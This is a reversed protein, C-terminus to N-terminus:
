LGWVSCRAIGMEGCTCILMHFPSHRHQSRDSLRWMGDVLRINISMPTREPINAQQTKTVHQCQINRVKTVCKCVINCYAFVISALKNSAYMIIIAPLLTPSSMIAHKASKSRSHVPTHPRAYKIITSILEVMDLNFFM